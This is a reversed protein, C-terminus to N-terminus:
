DAHIGGRAITRRMNMMHREIQEPSLRTAAVQTPAQEEQRQRQKSVQDALEPLFQGDAHRKVLARLYSLPSAVRGQNMRGVLEDVLTQADTPSLRSLLRDAAAARNADFARPYVLSSPVHNHHHKEKPEKTPLPTDDMVDGGAIASLPPRISLAPSSSLDDDGAPKPLVIYESSSQSGDARYRPKRQILGKGELQGLIRQLTCLSVSARPAVYALRPWCIGRDDALDALVTLVLKEAPRLPQELARTMLKISM